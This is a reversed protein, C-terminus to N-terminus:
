SMSLSTLIRYIYIQKIAYKLNIKKTEYDKQWEIIKNCHGLIIYKQYDGM